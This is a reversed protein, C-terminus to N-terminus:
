CASPDKNCFPHVPPHAGVSVWLPSVSVRLGIARQSVGTGSAALRGGGMAQGDQTGDHALNLTDM